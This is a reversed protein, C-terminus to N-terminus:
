RQPLRYNQPKFPLEPQRSPCSPIDRRQSLNVGEVRNGSCGVRAQRLTPGRQISSSNPRQPEVSCVIATNANYALCNSFNVVNQYQRNSVFAQSIGARACVMPMADKASRAFRPTGPITRCSFKNEQFARHSRLRQMLCRWLKHNIKIEANGHM